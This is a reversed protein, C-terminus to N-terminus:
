GKSLQDANYKAMEIYKGGKVMKYAAIALDKQGLKEHIQGKLYQFNNPKAGGAAIAKGITTVASSLDNSNMQASALYYLVDGNEKETLFSEAYKKTNDWEEKGEAVAIINVAKDSYSKARDAKGATKAIKSALIYTSISEAVMGKKEMAQAKGVYNTYMDPNFEIGKEYASIAAELDGARLHVNGAGYAAKPGNTQVLKKVQEDAETEGLASKAKYMLDLAAVYEKAKAKALGENYLSAASPADQATALQFSILTIIGFLYKKM